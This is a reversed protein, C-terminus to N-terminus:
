SPQDHADTEILLKNIICPHSQQIKNLNNAKLSVKHTHINVHAHMHTCVCMKKEQAKLGVALLLVM